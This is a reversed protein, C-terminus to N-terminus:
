KGIVFKNREVEGRDLFILCPLGGKFSRQGPSGTLTSLAKDRTNATQDTRWTEEPLRDIELSPVVVDIHWTVKESTWGILPPRALETPLASSEQQHPGPNSERRPWGGGGRRVPQSPTRIIHGASVSTM